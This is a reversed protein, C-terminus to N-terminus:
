GGLGFSGLNLFFLDALKVSSPPSLVEEWAPVKSRGCCDFAGDFLRGRIGFCVRWVILALVGGDGGGREDWGEDEGGGFVLGFGRGRGIGFGGAHMGPPTPEDSPLSLGTPPRSSSNSGDPSSPCELDTFFFGVFYVGWSKGSKFLGDKWDSWGNRTTEFRNGERERRDEGSTECSTPPSPIARAIEPSSMPSLM